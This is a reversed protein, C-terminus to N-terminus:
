SADMGVCEDPTGSLTRTVAKPQCLNEAYDALHAASLHAYRLVMEYCSWSGLEQLVQLPTGSQV